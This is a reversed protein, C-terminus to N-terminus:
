TPWAARARPVAASPSRRGSTPASRRPPPAAVMAPTGDGGGCLRPAAFLTSGEQLGPVEALRQGDELVLGGFVLGTMGEAAGAKARLTEGVEESAGAEHTVTEGNLTRIFLQM